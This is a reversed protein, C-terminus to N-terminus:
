GWRGEPIEVGGAEAIRRAEMEYAWVKGLSRGEEDFIEVRRREYENEAPSRGPRFGELRDFGVLADEDTLELVHGRIWEEGGFRAAPYGVPLAFLRGRARARQARAVRGECFDKWYFGGPRLTGYVFVRLDEFWDTPEEETRDM